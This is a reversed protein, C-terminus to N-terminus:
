KAAPKTSKPAPKPAPKEEPEESDEPEEDSEKPEEPAGLLGKTKLFAEAKGKREASDLSLWEERVEEPFSAARDADWVKGLYVWLLAAFVMCKQNAKEDWLKAGKTGFAQVVQGSFVAYASAKAKPKDAAPAAKAPVTKTVTVTKTVLGEHLYHLINERIGDIEEQPMDDHKFQDVLKEVAALYTASMTPLYLLLAPLSLCLIFLLAILKQIIM